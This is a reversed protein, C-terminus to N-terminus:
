IMTVVTTRQSPWANRMARQWNGVVVAITIAIAIVMVCRVEMVIGFEFCSFNPKYAISVRFM